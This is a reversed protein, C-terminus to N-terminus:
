FDDAIYTASNKGGFDTNPHPLYLAGRNVVAVLVATSCVHRVDVTAHKLHRVTSHRTCPPRHRNPNLAKGEAFEFAPYHFYARSLVGAVLTLLYTRIIFYLPVRVNERYVKIQAYLM